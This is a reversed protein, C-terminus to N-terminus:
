KKKVSKKGAFLLVVLVILVVGMGIVAILMWPIDKPEKHVVPEVVNVPLVVDVVQQEGTHMEEITLTVALDHQGAELNTTDIYANLTGTKFERLSIRPTDTVYSGIKLHASMYTEGKWNSAVQLSYPVIGGKTVNEQYSVVRGSLDGIRFTVNKKITTQDYTYALVASYDQPPLQDTVFMFEKQFAQKFPVTIDSFTKTAIVQGDNDLLDVRASTGSLTENGLNEVAFSMSLNGGENTSGTSFQKIQAYRQPYPVNVVVLPIVGTKSGVGTGEDPSKEVILVELINRGPHEMADTTQPLTLHVTFPGRSLPPIVLENDSLTAFGNMDRSLSLQVTIQKNQNNLVDFKFEHDFGSTFQMDYRAPTVGIASVTVALFFCSFLLFFFLGAAKKM